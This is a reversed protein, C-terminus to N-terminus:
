ERICQVSVVLVFTEKWLLLYYLYTDHFFSFISSLSFHKQGWELLPSSCCSKTSLNKRIDFDVAYSYTLTYAKAKVTFDPNM